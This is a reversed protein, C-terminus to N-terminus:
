LFCGRRHVSRPEDSEIRHAGVSSRHRHDDRSLARDLQLINQNTLHPQNSSLRIHLTEQALRCVAVGGNRRRIMRQNPEKVDATLDRELM